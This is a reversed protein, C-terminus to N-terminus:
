NSSNKREFNHFQIKVLFIVNTIQRSYSLRLGSLNPIQFFAFFKESFDHFRFLEGEITHEVPNGLNVPNTYNSNMLSILGDVLDSVYQFSRTQSGDGYIQM